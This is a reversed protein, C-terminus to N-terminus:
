NHKFKLMKASIFIFVLFTGILLFIDLGSRTYKDSGPIGENLESVVTPNDPNRELWASEDAITLGTIEVGNDLDVGKEDLGQLFGISFILVVAVIFFQMQGLSGKKLM